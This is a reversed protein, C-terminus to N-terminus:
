QQLLKNILEDVSLGPSLNFVGAQFKGAVGRKLVTDLFQNKDTLLGQAVLDNAISEASAGAPVQFSREVSAAGNSGVGNANGANGTSGGAAVTGTAPSNVASGGNSDNGSAPQKNAGAQSIGVSNGQTKGATQGLDALLSGPVPTNELSSGASSKTSSGAVVPNLHQLPIVVTLVASLILGTGLGMLYSRNIRM